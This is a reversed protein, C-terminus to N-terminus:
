FHAAAHWWEEALQQLGVQGQCDVGAAVGVGTTASIVGNGDCGEEVSSASSCGALQQSGVGGQTGTGSGNSTEAHCCSPQGASEGSGARELRAKLTWEASQQRSGAALGQGAALTSLPLPCTCERLSTGGQAPPELASPPPTGGPMTPPVLTHPPPRLSHSHGGNSSGGQHGAQSQPMSAGRSATAPTAHTRLWPLLSFLGALLCRGSDGASSSLSAALTCAGEADLGQDPREEGPAHRLLLRPDQKVAAALTFYLPLPPPPSAHQRHGAKPLSPFLQRAIEAPPLYATPSFYHPSLLRVLGSFQPRIGSLFPSGKNAVAAALNAFGPPCSTGELAHQDLVDCVLKSGPACLAGVDELLAKVTAEELYYLLGTAVVVSKSEPLFGQSTLAPILSTPNTLDVPVYRPKRAGQQPLSGQLVKDRSLVAELAAKKRLLVESRDVEFVTVASSMFKYGRTELGSGLLVVQTAGLAVAAAIEGDVWRSRALMYACLGPVGYCPAEIIAKCQAAIFPNLYSWLRGYLHSLLALDLQDAPSRGAAVEAIAEFFLHASRIDQLSSLKFFLQQPSSTQSLKYRKARENATKLPQTITTFTTFKSKALPHM